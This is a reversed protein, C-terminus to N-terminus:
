SKKLFETIEGIDSLVRCGTEILREKSNHGKSILVCDCGIASAVEFDHTTDGVFLVEDPNVGNRKIYNEAIEVKGKAYIDGTGLIETFLHDIGFEEVQKYLGQQESASIILQEMGMSIIYRLVKEAEPFIDCEHFREYYAEVYDKAIDKFSEKEFDFGLNKYLNIIPFGFCDLYQEVKEMEPINRKRLMENIAEFNINLDDLITGNWDWMIYKYKSM